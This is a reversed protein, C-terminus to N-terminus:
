RPQHQRRDPHLGRDREDRPRWSRRLQGRRDHGHLRARLALRHRDGVRRSPRETSDAFNLAPLNDAAIRIVALDTAADTGVVQAPFRRGDQLQVEIRFAHDVVHNNTLIYGDPRIVLGSGNGRAIGDDHPTVGFPGFPAQMRDQPLRAEVRVSVVSPSVREAVSTFAESLEQASAIAHREHPAPPPTNQQALAAGTTGLVTVSALAAAAIGMKRSSRTRFM